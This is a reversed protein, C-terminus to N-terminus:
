INKHKTKMTSSARKQKRISKNQFNEIFFVNSTKKNTKELSFRKSNIFVFKLYEQM